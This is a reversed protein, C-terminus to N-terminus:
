NKAEDEKERKEKYFNIILVLYSIFLPGLVIGILGFAFVGGTMSIFSLSLSMSSRKSLIYPRLFGDAFWSVFFGYLVLLLTVVIKGKAILILSAPIWVVSPGIIPLVGAIIGLFTLFLSNEFKITFLFLGLLVGQLIGVLIQGYFIGLTINRFEQFFVDKKKEEIPLIKKIENEIKEQDIIFYYLLFIFIIFYLAFAPLNVLFSNFKNILFSFFGNVISNYQAKITSLLENSSDSPLISILVGEINYNKIKFYVDRTEQI